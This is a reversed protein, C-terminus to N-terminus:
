YSDAVNLVGVHTYSGLFAVLQQGAPDSTLSVTDTWTGVSTPGIGQNKVQWAVHFPQGSQASSNVTLSDVTLDAYPIPMADLFRPSEASDDAESGNEFVQNDVDTKVFLHYRGTFALPLLLTQSQAYSTGVALGATHTFRGLVVDDFNGVASDKSAIVADD